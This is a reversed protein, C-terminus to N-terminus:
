LARFVVNYTQIQGGLGDCTLNTESIHTSSNAPIYIAFVTDSGLQFGNADYFIVDLWNYYRPASTYNVVDFQYAMEWCSGDRDLWRLTWNAVAITRQPALPCQASRWQCGHEGYAVGRHTGRLYSDVNGQTVVFAAASAATAEDAGRALATQRIREYDPHSAPSTSPAPASPQMAPEDGGIAWALVSRVDDRHDNQCAQEAQDGFVSQYIGVNQDNGIALTAM